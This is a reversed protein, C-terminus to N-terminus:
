LSATQRSLPAAVTAREFVDVFAQVVADAV